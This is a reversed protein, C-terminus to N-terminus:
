VFRVKDKAFEKIEEPTLKKDTNKLKIWACLEEGVREDPVGVVYADFIDPHAHLMEEVERPYINEGGRIILEKTRGVIKFFGEPTM